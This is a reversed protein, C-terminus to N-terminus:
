TLPRCLLLMGPRWRRIMPGGAKIDSINYRGALRKGATMRFVVVDSDALEDLGGSQAIAQLLSMGGVIPVVGTKKVAGEVTVRQSNYEKVYVSVQPNQLFKGGLAKALMLEVEQPSKGGVQMEGVLPFNISGSESVQITKSLEAVKFVSVDLVDLPGIKYSKSKPDTLSTYSRSVKLLAADQEASSAPAAGKTPTLPQSQPALQPKDNSFDGGPTVGCASLLAAAVALAFYRFFVSM